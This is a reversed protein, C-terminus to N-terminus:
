RSYVIKWGNSGHHLVFMEAAATTVVVDGNPNQGFGKIPSKTKGSVVSEFQQIDSQTLAPGTKDADSKHSCASVGLVIALSLIINKM